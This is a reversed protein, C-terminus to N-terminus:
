RNAWESQPVMRFIGNKFQHYGDRYNQQIRPVGDMGANHAGGPEGKPDWQYIGTQVTLEEPDTYGAAKARQYSKYLRSVYFDSMVDVNKAAQDRTMQINNEKLYKDLQQWGGAPDMQLLGTAGRADKLGALGAEGNVLGGVVDAFTADGDSMQYANTWVRAAVDRARGEGVAIGADPDAESMWFPAADGARTSVMRLASGTSPTEPTDSGIGVDSMYSMNRMQAVRPYDPVSNTLRVPRAEQVPYDEGNDRLMMMRSDPQNPQMDSIPTARRQQTRETIRNIYTNTESLGRPGYKLLNGSGMNYEALARERDGKYTKYNNAMRTAAYEFAQDANLPDVKAARAVDPMIQAPGQAGASSTRKGSMVNPDFDASEWRMQEVFEVPDPHGAKIAAAYAKQEEPRNYSSPMGAPAENSKTSMTQARPGTDTAGNSGDEYKTGPSLFARTDRVSSAPAKLGMKTVANAEPAVDGRVLVATNAAGNFVFGGRPLWGGNAKAASLGTPGAYYKGDPSKDSVAWWHGPGSIMVPRGAALEEDVQKWGAEDLKTQEAQMGTKSNVLNVMAAPGQFENGNHYQNGFTRVYNFAEKPDANYGRSRLVTSFANPGCDVETVQSSILGQNGLSEKWNFPQGPRTHQAGYDLMQQDLEKVLPVRADSGNFANKWEEIYGVPANRPDAGPRGNMSEERAWAMRAVDNLYPEAWTIGPKGQVMASIGQAINYADQRISDPVAATGKNQLALSALTDLPRDTFVAEEVTIPKTGTPTTTDTASMRQEPTIEDSLNGQADRQVVLRDPTFREAGTIPRGQADLRVDMRQPTFRGPETSQDSLPYAPRATSPYTNEPPAPTQWQPASAEVRIVPYKERTDAPANRYVGVPISVEEGDTNRIIVNSTDSIDEPIGAPTYPVQGPDDGSYSYAPGSEPAGPVPRPANNLMAADSAEAGAYDAPTPYRTPPRSQELIDGILDHTTGVTAATQTKITNPLPVGPALSTPASIPKLPPPVPTPTQGPIPTWGPATGAPGPPTAAPPTPAPQAAPAPAPPAPPHSKQYDAIAQNALGHDSALVRPYGDPEVVKINGNSDVWVEQGRFIGRQAQPSLDPVNPPPSTDAYTPPGATAASAAVAPSGSGGPPPVVGIRRDPAVPTGQPAGAVPRAGATPERSGYWDQNRALEADHQRAWEAEANDKYTSRFAARTWSSQQDLTQRDSAIRAATEAVHAVEEPSAGAAAAGAAANVGAERATGSAEPPPADEKPQPQSPPFQFLSPVQPQTPGLDVPPQPRFIPDVGPHAQQAAIRAAEAQQRALEAAQRQREEEERRKREEEERRRQEEEQQRRQEDEQQRRQEERQRDQDERQRDRDSTDRIYHEYSNDNGGDGDSEWDNSPDGGRDRDDDGGGGTWPDNDGGGGGEDGPDDDGGGGGEDGPDDDGGGGGEDGPDDDGGGDGDGEEDEWRDYVRWGPPLIKWFFSM